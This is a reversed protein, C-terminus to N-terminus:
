HGGHNHTSHRKFKWDRIVIGKSWLSSDMIKGRNEANVCVRFATVRDKEENRMWSKTTYCSLVSIDNALLYDTLLAVTCDVDLNDIHVVSKRVIDVGAKISSDDSQRTGFMKSKRQNHKPQVAPAASTMLRSTRLVKKRNRRAVTSYGDPGEGSTQADATAELDPSRHDDDAITSRSEHSIDLDDGQDGSTGASHMGTMLSNESRPAGSAYINAQRTYCKEMERLRHEFSEMTRIVAVLNVGDPNLFPIRSLDVATFVPLLGSLNQEDICTFLKLLDDANQKNKNDGTRKPLRPVECNRDSERLARSVASLLTEKAKALEEDNYFGVLTIIYFPL